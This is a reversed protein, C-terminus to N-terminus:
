IQIEGQKNKESRLITTVASAAIVRAAGASKLLEACRNMTSGTTLVDDCLIIHLDKVSIDHIGFNEVNKARQWANLTHQSVSKSKYLIDERCPLDLLVAMKQAILAAQNYGRIRKKSPHMPVPIIMDAKGYEANTFREALIKGSFDAFNLNRSKKLKLVAPVAAHDYRCAVVAKDYYLKKHQRSCTIKGCEHCYGNQEVLMSEACLQCVTEQASLFRDCGPCRNPYLLNLVSMKLNM